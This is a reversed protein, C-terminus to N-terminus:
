FTWFNGWFEIFDRVAWFGGNCQCWRRPMTCYTFNIYYTPFSYTQMNILPKAFKLILPAADKGAATCPTVKQSKGKQSFNKKAFIDRRSTKAHPKTPALM